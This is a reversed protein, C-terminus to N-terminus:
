IKACPIEADCESQLYEWSTKRTEAKSSFPTMLAWKSNDSDCYIEEIYITEQELHRYTVFGVQRKHKASITYPYPPTSFTGGHTSEESSKYGVTITKFGADVDFGGTASYSWSLSASPLIRASPGPGCCNQEMPPDNERQEVPPPCYPPPLAMVQYALLHTTVFPGCGDGVNYLPEEAYAVRVAALTVYLITLIQFVNTIKFM